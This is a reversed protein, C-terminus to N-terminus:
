EEAAAVLAKVAVAVVAMANSRSTARRSSRGERQMDVRPRADPCAADRRHMYLRAPARCSSLSFFGLRAGQACCEPPAVVFHWAWDSSVVM